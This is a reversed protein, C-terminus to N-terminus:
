GSLAPGHTSYWAGRGEGYIDDNLYFIGNYDNFASVFGNTEGKGTAKDVVAFRTFGGGPAFGQFFCAKLDGQASKQADVGIGRTVRPAVSNRNNICRVCFAARLSSVIGAPGKTQLRM